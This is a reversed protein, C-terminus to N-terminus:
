PKPLTTSALRPSTKLSIVHGLCHVVQAQSMRPPVLQDNNSDGAYAVIPDTALAARAVASKDIGLAPHYYPDTPDPRMLQGTDPAFTGPSAHIKLSLGMQALLREIYWGCGASAIVVQWGAAQLQQVAQVTDPAPDLARVL